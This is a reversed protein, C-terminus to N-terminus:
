EFDLSAVIDLLSDDSEKIDTVHSLKLQKSYHNYYKGILKEKEIVYSETGIENAIKSWDIYLRIKEDLKSRLQGLLYQDNEMMFYIFKNTQSIRNEHNKKNKELFGIYEDKKRVFRSEKLYEPRININKEYDILSNVMDIDSNFRTNNELSSSLIQYTLKYLDTARGNYFKNIRDIYKSNVRSDKISVLKFIKDFKAKLFIFFKNYSFPIKLTKDKVKEIYDAPLNGELNKKYNKARKGDGFKRGKWKFSSQAPLTTNM